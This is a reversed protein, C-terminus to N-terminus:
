SVIKRGNKFPLYELVIKRRKREKGRKREYM